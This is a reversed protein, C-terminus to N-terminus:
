FIAKFKAIRILHQKKKLFFFCLYTFNFFYVDEKLQLCAFYQLLYPNQQTNEASFHLVILNKCQYCYTLFKMSFGFLVGTCDTQIINSYVQVWFFPQFQSYQMM